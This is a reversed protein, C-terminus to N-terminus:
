LKVWGTMVVVVESNRFWDATEVLFPAEAVEVLDGPSPVKTSYVMWAKRQEYEYVKGDDGLWKVRSLPTSLLYAVLNHDWAVTV